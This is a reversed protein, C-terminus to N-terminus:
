QGHFVPSSKKVKSEVGTRYDQTQMSLESLVSAVDLMLNSRQWLLRNLSEKTWRIAATAGGALERAIRATMGVLEEDACVHNVLGLRYAERASMLNGTLLYEKARNLGLLLSWIIPGDSPVLGLRVHPDGFRASEAAIIVDSFLALSAGAGVADGNVSAIVPQPISLLAQVYQINETIGAGPWSRAPLGNVMEKLDGGASFARGAGTLVLVRISNDNVLSSFMAQLEAFTATDMANLVSPRTLTCTLVGDDEDLVLNRYRNIDLNIM